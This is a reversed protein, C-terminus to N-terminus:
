EVPIYEYHFKPPLKQIMRIAQFPTFSGELPNRLQEDRVILNVYSCDEFILAKLIESKKM